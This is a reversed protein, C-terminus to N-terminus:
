GGMKFLNYVIAYYTKSTENFNTKDKEKVFISIFIYIILFLKLYNLKKRPVTAPLMINILIVFILLNFTDRKGM